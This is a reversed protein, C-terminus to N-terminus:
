SILYYSSVNITSYIVSILQKYMYKGINIINNYVHVQRYKYYYQLYMVVIIVRNGNRWLRQTQNLNLWNITQHSTCLIYHSCIAFILMSIWYIMCRPKLNWLNMHWQINCWTGFIRRSPGKIWQMLWTQNKIAVGCWPKGYNNWLLCLHLLQSLTVISLLSKQTSIM